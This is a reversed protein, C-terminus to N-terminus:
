IVLLSGCNGCASTGYALDRYLVCGTCTRANCRTCRKWHLVRETCFLCVFAGQMRWLQDMTKVRADNISITLGEARFAEVISVDSVVEISGTAIARAHAHACFAYRLMLDRASAKGADMDLRNPTRPSNEVADVVEILSSDDLPSHEPHFFLRLDLETQYAKNFFALLFTRLAKPLEETGIGFM